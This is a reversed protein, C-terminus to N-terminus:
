TEWSGIWRVRGIITLPNRPNDMRKPKRWNHDGAPNDTRFYVTDDLIECRKAYMESGLQVVFIKGDVPRTDSTDFLIADGPHIRPAMSDGQGYFVALNRAYLGQRRLSNTRFKLKHSEAYEEADAGAGLGVAQAFGRIDEWDSYDGAAEGVHLASTQEPLDSRILTPDVGLVKAFGLVARYNLPIYGLLYQSIASQNTGLMEAAVEQTLRAGPPGAKSEEVARDWLRKLREAAAKDAPHRPRRSKAKPVTEHPTSRM